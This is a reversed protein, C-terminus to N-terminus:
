EGYRVYKGIREGVTRGSIGGLNQEVEKKSDHPDSKFLETETDPKEQITEIKKKDTKALDELELPVSEKRETVAVNDKNETQEPVNLGFVSEFTENETQADIGSLSIASIYLLLITRM